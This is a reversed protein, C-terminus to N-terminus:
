RAPDALGRFYLHPAGSDPVTFSGASGAIGSDKVPVWDVLNSSSQLYIRADPWSRWILRWSDDLWYFSHFWSTPETVFNINDLRIEATKLTIPTPDTLLEFTLINVRGRLGDLMHSEVRRVVFGSTEQAISFRRVVNSGIRVELEHTGFIPVHDVALAFLLERTEPPLFFRNHRAVLDTGRLEL